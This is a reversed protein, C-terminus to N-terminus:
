TLHKSLVSTTSAFEDVQNYDIDIDFECSIIMLQKLRDQSITTRLRNKVIKLKSFTREPTTSSVPLTCLIQLTIYLTPFISQLGSTHYVTDEKEEEEDSGELDSFSEKNDSTASSPHLYQSGIIASEFYSFLKSFEIYEKKLKTHNIFKSYLNCFTNFADDPLTNPNSKTKKLVSVSFLSIDKLLEQSKSHFREEICTIASLLKKKRSRQIPLSTFTFESKNMCKTAENCLDNYANLDRLRKISSSVAQLSNVTGLLDIDQCQFIKTVPNLINFLNKYYIATLVFRESLFFDILGTVKSRAKFTIKIQELTNIVIDYTLLVTNLASSYSMWRTIEVRKLINEYIAVRKKSTSILAYLQELNGFTDVANASCSSMQVVVLSLRHAYCWTYIAAPNIERILAQLGQYEGRMNNPFIITSRHYDSSHEIICVYRIIFALQERIPSDFTTDISVSFFNNLDLEKKISKKIYKSVSNILQNQRQWLIFNLQNREHIQLRDIYVALSPSFKCLFKVLDKFNGKIQESWGERHGQFPLSHQGLFLTIYILIHVIERNEAVQNRKSAYIQPLVAMSLCKMKVVISANIHGETKEHVSIDTLRQWEHFGDYIWSKQANKGFFMCHLCYFRQSSLSYSLWDPLEHKEPQFPKRILSMKEEISLNKVLTFLKPDFSLINPREIVPYYM